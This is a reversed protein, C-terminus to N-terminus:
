RMELYFIPFPSVLLSIQCLIKQQEVAVPQSDLELTDMRKRLINYAPCHQLIILSYDKACLQLITEKSPHTPPHFVVIEWSLFDLPFNWSSTFTDGGKRAFGWDVDPLLRFAACSKPEETHVSHVSHHFDIKKRRNKKTKQIGGPKLDAM